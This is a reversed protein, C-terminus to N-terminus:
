RVKVARVKWSCLLVCVHKLLDATEPPTPRATAQGSGADGHRLATRAAAPIRRFPALRLRIPMVTPRIDKNM